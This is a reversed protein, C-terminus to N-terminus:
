FSATATVDAEPYRDAFKGLIEPTPLDRLQLMFSLKKITLEM